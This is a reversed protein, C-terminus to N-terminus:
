DERARDLEDSNRLYSTWAVAFGLIDPFLATMSWIDAGSLLFSVLGDYYVALNISFWLAYLGITVGQTLKRELKRHESALIDRDKNNRDILWDSLGIEKWVVFCDAFFLAWAVAGLIRTAVEPSLRSHLVGECNSQSYETDGYLFWFYLVTWIVLNLFWFVLVGYAWRRHSTKLISKEKARVDSRRALDGKAERVESEISVESRGLRMWNPAFITAGMIAICGLAQPFLFMTHFRTMGGDVAGYKVRLFGTGLFANANLIQMIGLGWVSGPALNWGFATLAYTLCAWSFQGVGAVSTNPCLGCCVISTSSACYADVDTFGRSNCQEPFFNKNAPSFWSISDLSLSAFTEMEDLRFEMM